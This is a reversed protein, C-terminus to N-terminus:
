RGRLSEDLLEKLHDRSMKGSHKRVGTRRFYKQILPSALGFMEMVSTVDGRDALRRFQEVQKGYAANEAEINTKAAQADSLAASASAAGAQQHLLCAEM